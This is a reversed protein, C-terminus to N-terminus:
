AVLLTTAFPRKWASSAWGRRECRQSPPPCTKYTPRFEHTGACAQAAGDPSGKGHNGFLNRGLFDDAAVRACHQGVIAHANGIANDSGSGSIHQEQMAPATRAGAM